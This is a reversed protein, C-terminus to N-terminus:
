LGRDTVIEGSYPWDEPQTVLGARVPNRYVYDWKEVCSKESRILHDSFELQWVPKAYNLERILGKATWEKWRGVFTELSSADQGPTCFFHVHDPMIVYRAVNWRHRAPASEWEAKLIAAASPTALIPHRRFACTTIFFVAPDIWIRDL